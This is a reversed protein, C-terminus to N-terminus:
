DEPEYVIINDLDISEPTAGGSGELVLQYSRVGTLFGTNYTNWVGAVAEVDDDFRSPEDPAGDESDPLDYLQLGFDYSM